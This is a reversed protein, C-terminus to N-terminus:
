AITLPLSFTFKTGKGVDSDLELVGGHLEVLSKVIFLGLGTGRNEKLYSGPVQQFKEFIIPQLKKPIGIGNDRISIFLEKGNMWYVIEVRGGDPTFKISNDILNLLAQFIKARDCVVFHETEKDRCDSVVEINKAKAMHTVEETLECILQDINVPKKELSIRKEEIRSVDLLDSVLRTLRDTENAAKLLVTKLTRRSLDDTFDGLDGSLLLSLYGNVVTLPTRLEHSAISVFESKAREIEKLLSIDRIVLIIEKVEGNQDKIPSASLGVWVEEGNLNTHLHEEYAVPEKTILIKELPSFEPFYLGSKTHCNFVKSYLEGRAQALSWGTVNECAPNIHIIRFNNDVLCISEDVNAYMAEWREKETTLETVKKNIEEEQKKLKTVDRYSAAMGRFKGNDIIPFYDAEVYRPPSSNVRLLANLFPKKEKFVSNAMKESDFLRQMSYRHYKNWNNLLEERKLGVTSKTTGFLKAVAKNAYFITGDEGHLSLGESVANQLVEMMNKQEQTQKAINLYDIKVALYAALLEAVGIQRTTLPEKKLRALSLVGVTKGRQFIPFSFVINFGAKKVTEAINGESVYINGTKFAQSSALNSDLRIKELAFKQMLEENELEKRVSFAVPILNDESTDKLFVAAGEVQFMKLASEVVIECVKKVSKQKALKTFLQLSWNDQQDIDKLLLKPNEKHIKRRFRLKKSREAM